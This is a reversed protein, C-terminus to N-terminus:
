GGEQQAREAVELLLSLACQARAADDPSTHVAQRVPGPAMVSRLRNVDAPYRIAERAATAAAELARALIAPSLKSPPLSLPAVDTRKHTDSM